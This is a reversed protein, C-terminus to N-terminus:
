REVCIPLVALTSKTVKRTCVPVRTFQDRERLPMNDPSLVFSATPPPFLNRFAPLQSCEARQRRGVCQITARMLSEGLSEKEPRKL